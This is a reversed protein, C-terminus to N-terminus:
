ETFSSAKRTSVEKKKNEKVNFSLTEVIDTCLNESTRDQIKTIEEASINTTKGLQKFKNSDYENKTGENLVKISNELNIQEEFSHTPFFAENTPIEEQKLNIDNEDFINTCVNEVIINEKNIGELELELISLVHQSEEGM